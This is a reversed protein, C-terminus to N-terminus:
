GFVGAFVEIDLRGAEENMAVDARLVGATGALRHRGRRNRGGDDLATPGGHAQIDPQEDALVQIM